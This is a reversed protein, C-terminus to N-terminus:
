KKKIEIAFNTQISDSIDKFNKFLGHLTDSNYYKETGGIKAIESLHSEGYQKYKEKNKFYICFIRIRNEIDKEVDM